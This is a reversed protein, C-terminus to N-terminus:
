RPLRTPLGIIREVPVCRWDDLTEKLGDALVPLQPILTLCGVFQLRRASDM